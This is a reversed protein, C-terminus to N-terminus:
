ALGEALLPVDLSINRAGAISESEGPPELPVLWNAAFFQLEILGSPLLTRITLNGDLQAALKSPVFIRNQTHYVLPVSVGPEHLAVVTRFKGANWRRIEAPAEGGVRVIDGVKIPRSSNSM